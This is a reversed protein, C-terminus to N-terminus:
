KIGVFVGNKLVTKGNARMESGQPRMDKIMDMHIASTNIGGCDPYAFGLAMHITGKMKEDFLVNNMYKTVGPNGGIAFEGLRRAGDDTDLIHELYAQNDSASAKVVRGKEFYLHIDRMTVGQRTLPYNFYVEGEVSNDVPATFVEGGPINARWDDYIWVRGKTSLKLHTKEGFVEIETDTLVKALKKMEKEIKSWDQNTSQFYFEELDDLNMNAAQAMAATPYDTLVWPKDTMIKKYPEVLKARAQIRKPDVRVMDSTNVDAVIVISKDFHHVQFKYLEPHANLQQNSANQLYWSGLSEVGIDLHPLGGAQVVAKYVEKALPLGIPDTLRIWVREMVSVKISKDVLIHALEILRQDNM